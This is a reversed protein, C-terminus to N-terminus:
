LSVKVVMLYSFVELNQGSFKMVKNLYKTKLNLPKKFLQNEGKQSFLSMARQRTKVTLCYNRLFPKKQLYLIKSFLKNKGLKLELAM